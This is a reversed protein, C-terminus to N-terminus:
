KQAERTERIAGGIIYAVVLIIFTIVIVKIALMFTENFFYGCLVM